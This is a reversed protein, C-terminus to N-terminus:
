RRGKRKSDIEKFMAYLEANFPQRYARALPSLNWPNQPLEFMVPVYCHM